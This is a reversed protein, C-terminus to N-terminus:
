ATNSRQAASVVQCPLYITIGNLVDSAVVIRDASSVIKLNNVIYPLKAAHSRKTPAKLEEVTDMVVFILGKASVISTLHFTEM